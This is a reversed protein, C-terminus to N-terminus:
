HLIFQGFVKKDPFFIRTSAANQQFSRCFQRLYGLSYTMENQGEGDGASAGCAADSAAACSDCPGLPDWVLARTQPEQCAVQCRSNTQQLTATASCGPSALQSHENAAKHPCNFLGSACAIHVIQSCPWMPVPANFVALSGSFDLM